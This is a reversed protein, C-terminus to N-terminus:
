PKRPPKFMEDFVISMCKPCLNWNGYGGKSVSFCKTGETIFSGCGHCLRKRKGVTDVLNKLVQEPPKM